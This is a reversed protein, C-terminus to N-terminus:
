AVAARKPPDIYVTKSAQMVAVRAKWTGIEASTASATLKQTNPNTLGTTTWPATSTTWNTTTTPLIPRRNFSITHQPVGSVTPAHLELAIDGDHLATVSDHIFEITLTFTGLATVPILYWPSWLPAYFQANASAVLKHSYPTGGWTAGATRVITTEEGVTGMYSSEQWGVHTDGSFCNMVRVTPMGPGPNTGTTLSFGSGIKCDCLDIVGGMTATGVAVIPQSLNNLDVGRMEVFSSTGALLKFLGGTPVTGGSLLSGGYWKLPFAPNIAQAANNTQVDVANWEMLADNLTGTSGIAIRSGSGSGLLKVVCSRYVLHQSGTNVAQWNAASAASTTNYTHGYFAAHAAFSINSAAGTTSVSGTTALATPPQPDGADDVCIVATKSAATGPSTITIAAATTEAHNDSMFSRGGAGAATISAALTADALAWTSGNDADLGDTSRLYVDAL